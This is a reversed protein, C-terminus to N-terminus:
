YIDCIRGKHLGATPFLPSTLLSSSSGGAGAHGSGTVDGRRGPSLSRCATLYKSVQTRLAPRARRRPRTGWGRGRGCVTRSSAWMASVNLSRWTMRSLAAPCAICDDWQVPNSTCCGPWSTWLFIFTLFSRAIHGAVRGLIFHPVLLGFPFLLPAPPPSPPPWSQKRPM